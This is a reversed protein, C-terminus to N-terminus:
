ARAATLFRSFLPQSRKAGTLRRLGSAGPRHLASLQGTQCRPSPQGEVPAKSRRQIHPLPPSTSLPSLSSRLTSASRGAIWGLGAKRLEGACSVRYLLFGRDGRSPTEENQAPHRRFAAVLRGGPFPQAKSFGLPGRSRRPVQFFFQAFVGAGPARFLEALLPGIFQGAVQPALRDRDVGCNAALKVGALKAMQLRRWIAQKWPKVDRALDSPEGRALNPGQSVLRLDILAPDIGHM